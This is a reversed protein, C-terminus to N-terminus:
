SSDPAVGKRREDGCTVGTREARQDGPGRRQHADLTRRMRVVHGSLRAQIASRAVLDHADVVELAELLAEASASVLSLDEGTDRCVAGHREILAGLAAQQRTLKGALFRWAKPWRGGDASGRGSARGSTEVRVRAERVARRDGPDALVLPLHAVLKRTKEDLLASASVLEDGLDPEIFTTVMVGVRGLETVQRSLADQDAVELVVLSSSCKSWRATESPRAVAHAVAAHVAM